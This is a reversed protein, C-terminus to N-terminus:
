MLLCGPALVYRSSPNHNRTGNELSFDSSRLSFPQRVPALYLSLAQLIYYHRLISLKLVWFSMPHQTLLRLQPFDLVISLAGLWDFRFFLCLVLYPLICNYDLTCPLCRVTRPFIFLCYIFSYSPAIAGHLPAGTNERAIWGTSSIMDERCTMMSMSLTRMGLCLAPVDSFPHSAQGVSNWGSAWVGFM